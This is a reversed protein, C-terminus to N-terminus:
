LMFPKETDDGTLQAVDSYLQNLMAKSLFKRACGTIKPARIQLSDEPREGEKFEQQVPKICIQILTPTGNTGLATIQIADSLTGDGISDGCGDCYSQMVSGM